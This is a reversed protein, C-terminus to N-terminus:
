RSDHAVGAARGAGVARRAVAQRIEMHGAGAAEETAEESKAKEAEEGEAAEGGIAKEGGTAEGETTANSGNTADRRGAKPDVPQNM